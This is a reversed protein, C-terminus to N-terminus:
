GNIVPLFIASYYKKVLSNAHIVIYVKKSGRTFKYSKKEQNFFREIKNKLAIKGFKLVTQRTVMFENVEIKSHSPINEM